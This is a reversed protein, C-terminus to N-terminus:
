ADGGVDGCVGNRGKRVGKSIRGYGEEVDVSVFTGDRGREGDTGAEFIVGIAVEGVNWDEGVNRDRWGKGVKVLHRATRVIKVPFAHRRPSSQGSKCMGSAPTGYQRRHPSM